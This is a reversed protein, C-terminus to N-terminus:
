PSPPANQSIPKKRQYKKNDYVLRIRAIEERKARPLFPSKRGCRKKGYHEAATADTAHGMLSAIEVLSYGAAKLNACFQHRTSYLTIPPTLSDLFCKRLYRKFTDRIAKYYRDWDNTTTGNKLAWQQNKTCFIAAANILLQISVKDLVEFYLHRFEGHSRDHTDKSNRVRVIIRNSDDKFLTLSRWENPRIGLLIGGQFM